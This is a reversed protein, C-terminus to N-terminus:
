EFTARCRRRRLRRSTRCTRTGAPSRRPCNQQGCLHPNQLTLTAVQELLGYSSHLTLSDDTGWLNIRSVDLSVRPSVRDEGGAYAPQVPQADASHVIGGLDHGSAANGDAGRVRLWVDRGLAEGRDAAAAREEGARRGDPNQVAAIVENFLAINYLNRQTELLATQDLPDGAHVMM